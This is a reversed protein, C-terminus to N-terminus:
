GAESLEPPLDEFLSGLGGDDDIEELFEQARTEPNDILGNDLDEVGKEYGAAYISAIVKKKQETLNM